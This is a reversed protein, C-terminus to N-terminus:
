DNSRFNSFPNPHVYLTKLMPVDAPQILSAVTPTTNILNASLHCIAEATANLRQDESPVCVCGGFTLVSLTEEISNDFTFASFQLARTNTDFGVRPGHANFSSCLAKHELVVGKPVGTSGSTYVLWAANDPTVNKCVPETTSPSLLGDVWAADVIILNPSIGELLALRTAQSADVMIVSIQSDKAITSVRALPQQTGLPTVAGGAMLIALISVIAWRSKDMSLGVTIDPGVGRQSALHHAVKRANYHLAAYSFDGDWACVAQTDPSKDVSAQIRDHICAYTTSPVDQNWQRIISADHPTILHLDGICTGPEHNELQRINHEFHSLLAAATSPSLVNRDFRIDIAVADADVTCDVALAYGGFDAAEVMGTDLELGIRELGVGDASTPAPQIIFLHGADWDSAIGPVVKRIEQLGAHAYPAMDKAQQDVAALFDEVTQEKDLKTRVPVTTITPGIINDIDLVPIDRGSLSVNVIADNSGTYIAVTMAWAARLLSTKQGKKGFDNLRLQVIDVAKPQYTPSPLLPFRTLQANGLQSKWFAAMDDKDVWQLYEVFRSMPAVAFNSEENQYINSFMSLVRTLSWGDYAAHHGTWVLYDGTKDKVIALRHLPTGYAFPQSQDEKLYSHLGTASKWSPAKSAVVQVAGQATYAIRTRLMPLKESLQNWAWELRPLDVNAGVRFVQQVMYASIQQSTIAMMGEQLPTSPYVDAIEDAKTLDECQNVVAALRAEQQQLDANIFGGWLEFPLPDEDVAAMADAAAESAAQAMDSLRSNQLVQAVGLKIPITARDAAAVLRMAAVSDGGLQFFDDDGSRIEEAPLGLVEAWLICLQKETESLVGDDTKRAHEATFARLQERSLCELVRKTARRDLKGSANVPLTMPIFHSPIMYVPLVQLLESRLSEFMLRLRHSPQHIADPLQVSEPHDNEVEDDKYDHHFAESLEVAVLLTPDPAEQLQVLDVCAYQIASHLQVIQSEIEGTEVRQGRIKIQTDIRGLCELLGNERDQVVLDGTRYMRRGPPLGFSTIFNPDLVFSEQTKGLNHLYERALMPGEILLEGPTGPPVLSNHDLPSAIWLRNSVPSGIIPADQARLVPGNIVSYISCEAPGYGNFVACRGIWPKVADPKVAEGVFIITDLSAPVTQPDLLSTVTPTLTALTVQMDGMTSALADTRDAESPLCVCGGFALTTMNDQISVDFTFASFQLTRTSRGFSYRAGHAFISSCMAQHELVVGKPVGTSGSTYIVWAPNSPTARPTTLASTVPLSAILSSNAVVAHCVMSKFRSAQLGDVLVVTMKADAVVTKIRSDPYQVGLPVVAGGARLIAVMAVVAFKGKDMCLGVYTEPGVGLSVLHQALRSASSDLQTYTLEGDRACVAPADPHDTIQKQILSDVTTQAPDPPPRNWSLIKKKDLPSILDLQGVTIDRQTADLVTSHHNSLQLQQVVHELQSMLAAVHTTSLMNEDFRMEVEVGAGGAELTCEVVLGYGEFNGRDGTLRDLGISQAASLEDDGWGPQVHFLHGSDFDHGLGPVARRINALGFQTHPAMTKNQSDVSSLFDAVTQNRQIRIRALVTTVTPAVLDEIGFVPADRGSLVVALMAENSATQSAVVLAWAARLLMASSVGSGHNNPVKLRGLLEFRHRSVGDASPRYTPKPSPPFTTLEANELEKKWYDEAQMRGQEQIFRIFRPIPTLVDVPTKTYQQIFTRFIKAVTHGDYASHHSTWIFYRTGQSQNEGAGNSNDSVIAFRHLATGYAFSAERDDQIFTSLDAATTSWQPPKKVVVQMSGTASTYVIRTRLIPMLSAADTWAQRFRKLDVASDIRYVQQAVYTGSSQSTMAMLGEQLPSVPYVDEVADVSVSCQTAMDVLRGKREDPDAALFGDWLEFPVPDERAVKEAVVDYNDVVRALDALRPNQLIDAVSVPVNKRKSISAMRMAIVSDGGLHFFHDDRGIEDVPRKLVEAWTAQLSKETETTIAGHGDKQMFVTLKEETLSEVIARSLKRDLKASVNTPLSCFPLLFAPVMYLPLEDVLKAHLSQLLGKLDESMTCLTGPAPKSPSTADRMSIAAVLVSSDLHSNSLRMLDVCVLPNEPLSQSIRSEIEGVEVRQGRIKIQTDRRGLYILSGDKNQRVLDGTRYMRRGPALGLEKVFDPDLVFAAATKAPDHLYERAIAGEVLLEGVAGIPSLQNHDSPHTIWLRNAAAFGINSVDESRIIPGYITTIISCESPGYANFWRARGKELWPQIIAFNLAEGTLVVTELTPLQDLDLLSAVTPTITAYNVGMKRIAEGLDELRQKESPICICGGCSLTTFIDKATADFTHDSFQLARTSVDIKERSSQFPMPGCVTKHELVVGKPIGTSGSTYVIWAANDPSVTPWVLTEPPSSLESLYSHDVVVTRQVIGELRKAHVPDALLIAMDANHVITQIRSLPHRTGLPVVVGGAQLIALMVVPALRSKDMCVGIRCEPGVGLSLLESSLRRAMEGLERYTLEGDWAYVAPLDPQRRITDWVQSHVCNRPVDFATGNSALIKSRDQETLGVFDSCSKSTNQLVFDLSDRFLQLLNLANERQTLSEWVSM